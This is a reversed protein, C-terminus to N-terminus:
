KSVVSHSKLARLSRDLSTKKRSTLEERARVHELSINSEVEARELDPPTLNQGLNGRPSEM